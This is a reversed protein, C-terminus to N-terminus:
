QTSNNQNHAAVIGLAILIVITPVATKPNKLLPGLSEPKLMADFLSRTAQGSSAMAEGWVKINAALKAMAAKKPLVPKDLHLHLRGTNKTENIDAIHSLYRLQTQANKLEPHIQILDKTGLAVAQLADQVHDQFIKKRMEGGIKTLELALPAPVLDSERAAKEWVPGPGEPNDNVHMSLDLTPEGDINVWQAFITDRMIQAYFSENAPFHDSIRLTRAGTRDDHDLSYKLQYISNIDSLDKDAIAKDIYIDLPYGDETILQDLHECDLIEIGKKNIFPAKTSNVSTETSEPTEGNNDKLAQMKVLRQQASPSYLPQALSTKLRPTAYAKKLSSPLAAPTISRSMAANSLNIIM